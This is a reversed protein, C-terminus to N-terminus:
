RILVSVGPQEAFTQCLWDLHNRVALLTNLRVPQDDDDGAEQSVTWEAGDAEIQRTAEVIFDTLRSFRRESPPKAAAFREILLERLKRRSEDDAVGAFPDERTQWM